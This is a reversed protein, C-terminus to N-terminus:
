YRMKDIQVILDSKVKPANFKLNVENATAHFEIMKVTSHLLQSLSYEELNATFM